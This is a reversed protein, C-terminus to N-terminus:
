DYLDELTVRQGVKLESYKDGTIVYKRLSGELKVYYLTPKATRLKVDKDKIYYFKPNVENMLSLCETILFVIVIIAGTIIPTLLIIALIEIKSM